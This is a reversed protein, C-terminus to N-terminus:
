VLLEVSPERYDDERPKDRFLRTCFALQKVTEVALGNRLRSLTDTANDEVPPSM